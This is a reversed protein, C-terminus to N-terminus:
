TGSAGQYYDATISSQLTLRGFDAHLNDLDYWGAGTAVDIAEGTDGTGYATMNNTVSLAM